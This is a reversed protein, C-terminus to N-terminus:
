QKWGDCSRLKAIEIRTESWRGGDCNRGRAKQGDVIMWQRRRQGEDVNTRISKWNRKNYKKTKIPVKISMEPRIKGEINQHFSIIEIFSIHFFWCKEREVGRRWQNLLPTTSNSWSGTWEKQWSFNLSSKPWRWRFTSCQDLLFWERKSNM